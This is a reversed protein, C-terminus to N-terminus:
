VLVLVIMDMLPKLVLSVQKHHKAWFRIVYENGATVSHRSTRYQQVNVADSSVLKMAYIGDQVDVTEVSM